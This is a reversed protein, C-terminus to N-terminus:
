MDVRGSSETGRPDQACRDGFARAPTNTLVPPLPFNNLVINRLPDHPYPHCINCSGCLARFVTASRNCSAVRSSFALPGYYSYSPIDNPALCREFREPQICESSVLRILKTVKNNDNSLVNINQVLLMFRL